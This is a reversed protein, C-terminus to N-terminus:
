FGAVVWRLRCGGRASQGQHEWAVLYRRRVDHRERQMHVTAM